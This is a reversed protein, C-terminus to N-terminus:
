APLTDFHAGFRDLSTSMARETLSIENEITRLQAHLEDRKQTLEGLKDRQKRLLELEHERDRLLQEQNQIQSDFHSLLDSM